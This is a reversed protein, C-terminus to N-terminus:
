VVDLRFIRSLVRRIFLTPILVVLHLAASMALVVASSRLADNVPPAFNELMWPGIGILIGLGLLLVVVIGLQLWGRRDTSSPLMTSSVTMTLYFWIWFDPRDYVASISAIVTALDLSALADWLNLLGLQTRGAYAVFLGGSFLPAAGILADRLIDSQATEVYGMLMRGDALRQPILSFRGTRVRLLKAMLYHSLEHLLVGPLFLISFIVMTIEMRRTLLLFVAQLERHFARQLLILPILALLAWQLGDLQPLM